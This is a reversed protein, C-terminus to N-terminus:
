GWDTFKQLSATLKAQNTRHKVKFYGNKTKGCYHVFGLFTFEKPKSGLTYANERAFRGFEICQTKEMALELGFKNLREKLLMQFFEAEDRYQFCALFDDAFRFYYAKGKSQSCITHKFWLDLVYHGYINSLLPSVM